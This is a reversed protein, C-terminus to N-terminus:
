FVISLINYINMFFPSSRGERVQREEREWFHLNAAPWMYGYHYSTLNRERETLRAEPYRSYKATVIKMKELTALRQAKAADLDDARAQSKAPEQLARRLWLAHRVRDFTFITSGTCTDVM